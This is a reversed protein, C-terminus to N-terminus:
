IGSPLYGNEKLMTSVYVGMEYVGILGKFVYFGNEMVVTNGKVWVPKTMICMPAM